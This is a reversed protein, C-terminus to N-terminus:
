LWSESVEANSAIPFLQHIGPDVALKEPDGPQIRVLDPVFYQLFATIAAIEQADDHSFHRALLANPTPSIASRFVQQTHGADLLRDGISQNNM